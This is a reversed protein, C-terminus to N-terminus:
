NKFNVVQTHTVMWTFLYTSILDSNFHSQYHNLHYLDLSVKERHFYQVDCIWMYEIYGYFECSRVGKHILKNRKWQTMLLFVGVKVESNQIVFSSLFDSRHNFTLHNCPSSRKTFPSHSCNTFPSCSHNTFPSCPPQHVFTTPSSHIFFQSPLTSLSRIICPSHVTLAHVILLSIPFTSCKLSQM